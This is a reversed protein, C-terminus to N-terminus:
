LLRKKVMEALEQGLERWDRAGEDGERRSRVAVQGKEVERSGVVLMYPIKEVEAQRIRYGMKEEREDMEVRLGLSRLGVAVERAYGRVGEHVPLIRVQVPALWLPFDGAFHEVLIGAFRELSGFIARHIMVPRRHSGDPAVYTLDFRIPLQFDLQVTATQWQRGLADTVYFDLKPGYFAGDGPNLTFPRGLSELTEALQAEAKEWLSLEGMYDEPRTSLVIRYAMGFTGYVED